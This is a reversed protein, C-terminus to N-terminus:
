FSAYDDDKHKRYLEFLREIPVVYSCDKDKVEVWIREKYSSDEPSLKLQWGEEKRDQIHLMGFGELFVRQDTFNVIKKM